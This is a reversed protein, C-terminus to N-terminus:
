ESHFQKVDVSIPRLLGQNFVYIWDTDSKYGVTCGRGWVKMSWLEWEIICWLHFICYGFEEVTDCVFACQVVLFLSIQGRTRKQWTIFWYMLSIKNFWQTHKYTFVKMKGGKDQKIETLSSVRHSIIGWTPCRISDASPVTLYSLGPNSRRCRSPCLGNTRLCSFVVAPM